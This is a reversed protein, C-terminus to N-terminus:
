TYIDLNVVPCIPLPLAHIHVYQPGRLVSPWGRCLAYLNAYACAVLPCLFMKPFTPIYSMPFADVNGLPDSAYLIIGM